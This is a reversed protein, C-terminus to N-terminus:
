QHAFFEEETADMIGDLIRLSLDPGDDQHDIAVYYCGKYSRCKMSVVQEEKGIVGGDVLAQIINEHGPEVLADMRKKAKRGKATRADPSIYSGQYMVWGPPISRGSELKVAVLKRDGFLCSTTGYQELFALVRKKYRERDEFFRSAVEGYVGSYLRYYRM